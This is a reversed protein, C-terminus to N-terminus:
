QFLRLRAISATTTSITSVSQHCLSSSSQESTATTTTTTTTTTPAHICPTASYATDDTPTSFVCDSATATAATAATTCSLSSKWECQWQKAETPVSEGLRQNRRVGHGNSRLKRICKIVHIVTSQLAWRRAYGLPLERDGM